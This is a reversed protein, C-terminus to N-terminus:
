PVAALLCFLLCSHPQYCQNSIIISQSSSSFVSVRRKRGAICWGPLFIFLLTFSHFPSLLRLNFSADLLSSPFLSCFTLFFVLSSVVLQPLNWRQNECSLPFFFSLQDACQFIRSTRLATLLQNKNRLPFYFFTFPPFPNCFSLFQPSPYLVGQLYIHGKSCVRPHSQMHTRTDGM